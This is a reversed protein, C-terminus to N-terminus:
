ICNDLIYDCLDYGKEHIGAIPHLEWTASPILESLQQRKDEWLQEGGVDPYLIVRRNALVQCRQASLNTLSGSALWILKPYIISAVIATKESEVICVIGPKDLLHEGFLCIDLNFNAIKAVKHVWTILPKPDKIRKGTSPDYVMIKGSRTRNNIDLQWFINAGHWHKSTGIGYKLVLSNSTADNFIKTLWKTFNNASNLRLTGVAIDNNIYSTEIKPAPKYIWENDKPPLKYFDRIWKVAESSNWGKYLRIFDIVDGGNGSSFCKFINKSACVTFSPSREDSFPSKGIYNAGNRKLEVFHGIVEVINAQEKVFKLDQLASM